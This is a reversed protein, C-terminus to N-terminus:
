KIWFWSRFLDRKGEDRRGLIYLKIDHEKAYQNVVSKVHNIERQKFVVYDHGSIVGGKKVKKSWEEIDELVYKQTHNGDIYVFDISEDEFDKVAEMSTKRIVACDYPALRSKSEEYQRELSTQTM